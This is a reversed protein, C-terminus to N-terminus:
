RSYFDFNAEVIEDTLYPARTTILHYALWLKWAAFNAEDAWMAAFGTMFSPERVVLTAFAAEPAGMAQRWAVWDFGPASAVLEALTMPNYTLTAERDKVVDWHHTALETELTMVRQAAEAAAASPSPPVVGALTLMRAIHAVYKERTEAHADERYYAEDPLGLGAQMLYVRYQEPDKADNDVFAGIASAGGTRGLAGLVDTLEALNSASAILDLEARIPAIGAANITEIDMFSAYLAGIKAATGTTEASAALDEIIARVREESLDLLAYFAGDMPRDAPIEHTDIWKGNVHRFLDDQPRVAPDLADLDIGSKAVDISM